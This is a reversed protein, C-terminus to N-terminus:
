VTEEFLKMFILITMIEKCKCSEKVILFNLFFDTEIRIHLIDDECSTSYFLSKANIQAVTGVEFYTTGYFCNFLASIEQRWL